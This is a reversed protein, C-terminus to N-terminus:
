TRLIGDVKGNIWDLVQVSTIEWQDGWGAVFNSKFAQHHRSALDEDGTVDLLIALALQAPGSGCYGFEFGTPSHNVVKLSKAPSLISGNKTVIVEGETDRHGEYINM